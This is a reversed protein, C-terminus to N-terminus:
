QQFENNLNGFLHNFKDDKELEKHTIKFMKNNNLRSDQQSMPNQDDNLIMELYYKFMEINSNMNNLIDENINNMLDDAQIISPTPTFHPQTLSRSQRLKNSKDISKM